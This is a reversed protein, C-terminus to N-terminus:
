CISEERADAGEEVTAGCDGTSASPGRQFRLDIRADREAAQLSQVIVDFDEITRADVRRIGCAGNRGAKKVLYMAADVLGVAREWPIALEVSPTATQLPFRAFGISASVPVSQGDYIVPADALACLIRQALTEAEAEGLPPTLVLVEEGGWRVVLDADRLTRRLRDAIEVLVADGGAHGHRDNIRKFHDVDLLYLTGELGPGPRRAMVAQLHRRNSLGTLPDIEAQIRLQENGVALLRNRARLRSALAVGVAVLLLGSAGAAIWLRIELARHRIAEDELAGDRALVALEQQRRENDFGAQLEILARQRDARDLVDFGQESERYAALADGLYGAEELAGGLDHAKGAISRASGYREDIHMSQRALAVGEDKRKMGVLAMGSNFLIVSEATGNHLERALPLVGNVMDYAAQFRKDAIYDNAINVTDLVIGLRCGALRAHVLAQRDAEVEAAGATDTTDDELIRGRANYSQAIGMEDGSETAIRLAEDNYETAKDTNHEAEILVDVIARLVDGKLWHPGSAEVIKLADNYFKLAEDYRGSRRKVLGRGMLLRLRLYSPADAPLLAEAKIMQDEAKGVEANGRLWRGRLLAAAAKPLGPSSVGPQAEMRRAVREVQDGDSMSAYDSGIEMLVDLLRPDEPRMADAYRQLEVTVVEPQARGIMQLREFETKSLPKGVRPTAVPPLPAVARVKPYGGTQDLSSLKLGFTTFLLLAVTSAARAAHGAAHRLTSLECTRPRTIGVRCLEGTDM